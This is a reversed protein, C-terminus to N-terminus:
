DQLQLAKAKEIQFQTATVESDLKPNLATNLNRVLFRISITVGGIVILVMLIGIGLFTLETKDRLNFKMHVLNDQFYEEM